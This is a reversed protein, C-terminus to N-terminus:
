MPDILEPALVACAETLWRLRPHGARHPRRRRVEGDPRFHALDLVVISPGEPDVQRPAIDVVFGAAELWCHARSPRGARGSVITVDAFGRHVLWQALLECAEGLGREPVESLPAPLRSRHTSLAHVFRRATDTLRVLDETPRPAM